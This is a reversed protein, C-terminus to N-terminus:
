KNLMKKGNVIVVGKYNKNVRQGALNYMPANADINTNDNVNLNAIGTTTDEFTWAARAHSGSSVLADSTELYAKGAGSTQDSELNYFGVNEVTTGSLFYHYAGSTSAAVETATVSPKLLNGELSAPSEGTYLPITYSGEDAALLLGKNAAATSTKTLVVKDDSTLGSAYYANVKSSTFDLAKSSSLTAYGLSGITATIGSLGNDKSYVGNYVLDLDGTKNDNGDLGNTFVVTSGPLATITASCSGSSESLTEGPWSGHLPFPIGDKFTYANVSGWSSSFKIPYSDEVVLLKVEWWNSNDSYSKVYVYIDTARENKKVIFNYDQKDESTGYASSFDTALTCNGDTPGRWGKSDIYVKFKIDGSHIISGDLRAYMEWNGLSTFPNATTSWSNFDGRVTGTWASVQMVGGLLVLCLLLLKKM